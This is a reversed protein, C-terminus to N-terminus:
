HIYVAIKVVWCPNDYTTKTCTFSLKLKGQLPGKKGKLTKHSKLVSSYVMIVAHWHSSRASLSCRDSDATQLKGGGVSLDSFTM